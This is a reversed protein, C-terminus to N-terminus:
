VRKIQLGVGSIDIGDERSKINLVILVINTLVEIDRFTDLIVLRMRGLNVQDHSKEDCLLKISSYLFYKNWWHM